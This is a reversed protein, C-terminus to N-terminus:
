RKKAIITIACSKEEEVWFMCEDEICELLAEGGASISLLPCAKREESGM